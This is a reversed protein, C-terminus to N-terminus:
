PQDPKEIVSVKQMQPTSDIKEKFKIAIRRHAAAEAADSSAAQTHKHLLASTHAQLDQAKKGYLYSKNEYHKLLLKLEEARAQNKKVEEEYYWAISEHKKRAEDEYYRELLENSSVASTNQAVMTRHLPEVAPLPPSAVTLAGLLSLISFFHRTPIM